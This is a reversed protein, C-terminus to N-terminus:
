VEMDNKNKEATQEASNLKEANNEASNDKKAFYFTIIMTLIPLFQDPTVKGVITLFSFVLVLIITIISKLDILKKLEEM